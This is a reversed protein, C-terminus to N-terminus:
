NKKPGDNTFDCRPMHEELKSGTDIYINPTGVGGRERVVLNNSEINLTVSYLGGGNLSEFELNFLDGEYDIIKSRTYYDYCNGIDPNLTNLNWSFWTSDTFFYGRETELVSQSVWIKQFSEPFTTGLDESSTTKCSFVLFFSGILLISAKKRFVM